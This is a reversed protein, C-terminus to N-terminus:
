YFVQAGSSCLHSEAAGFPCVSLNCSQAHQLRRQAPPKQQCLCLCPAFLGPEQQAETGRRVSSLNLGCVRAPHLLFMIVHFINAAQSALGPCLAGAVGGSSCTPWRPQSGHPRSGHPWSSHPWSSHPLGRMLRSKDYMCHAVFPDGCGVVLGYGQPNAILCCMQHLASCFSVRPSPPAAFVSRPACPDKSVQGWHPHLPKAMLM